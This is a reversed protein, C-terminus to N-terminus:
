LAKLTELYKKGPKTLQYGEGTENKCIVQRKVLISHDYKRTSIKEQTNTGRAIDLFLMIQSIALKM